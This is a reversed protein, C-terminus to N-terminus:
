RWKSLKFRKWFDKKKSM